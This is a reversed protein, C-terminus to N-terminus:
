ALNSAIKADEWRVPPRPDSRAEVLAARDAEDERREAETVGYRIVKRRERVPMAKIQAIVKEAVTVARYIPQHTANDVVAGFSSSDLRVAAFLSVLTAV